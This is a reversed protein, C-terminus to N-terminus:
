LLKPSTSSMQSRARLVLGLGESMNKLCKRELERVQECAVLKFRPILLYAFLLRIEASLSHLYRVLRCAPSEVLV